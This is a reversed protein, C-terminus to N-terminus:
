KLARADRDGACPSEQPRDDDICQRALSGANLRDDSRGTLRRSNRRPRRVHRLGIDTVCRRHCLQDGVDIRDDMQRSRCGHGRRELVRRSGYPDMGFPRSRDELGAARPSHSLQHVDRGGLDVALRQSRRDALLM